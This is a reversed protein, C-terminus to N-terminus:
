PLWKKWAGKSYESHTLLEKIYVRRPAFAIRVILRYHTGKINFIALSDVMDTPPFDRRIDELNHWEAATAIKFWYRLANKADAYKAAKGFLERKCIVSM